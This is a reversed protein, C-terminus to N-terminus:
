LVSDAQLWSFISSIRLFDHAPSRAVVCFSLDREDKEVGDRRLDGARRPAAASLFNLPPATQVVFMTMASMRLPLSLRRISFSHFMLPVTVCRSIQDISTPTPGFM